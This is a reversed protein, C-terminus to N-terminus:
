GVSFFMSITRILPRVESCALNAITAMTTDSVEGNEIEKRLQAVCEVTLKIARLSRNEKLKKEFFFKNVHFELKGHIM